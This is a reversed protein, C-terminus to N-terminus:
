AVHNNATMAPDHAGLRPGPNGIPPRRDDLTLPIAVTKLEDGLTAGLIGLAEAQASCAVQDITNVRGCPVGERELEAELDPRAYNSISAQLVPILKERNSVRADNTVFRPDSGLEPLKLVHCLSRFLKDNGAAIMLEEEGQCLFTQYPVINANGSGHREPAVGSNLYDSIQVTQWALATEYLSTDITAGNGTSRREICAALIGIAAWMGTGMDNVSIPIRTSPDGARGLLSMMGSVAQILPDYGPHDRLPGASGFATINCYILAPKAARLTAADLGVREVSGRKLNQIVIDAEELILNAIQDVSAPDRFDATISQKGLNVAHFMIAADGHRVSGWGRAHDGGGGNEIKTVTAGLQGLIHGAYPASLSHGIEIVRLGALPLAPISKKEAM